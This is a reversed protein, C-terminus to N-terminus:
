KSKKKNRFHKSIDHNYIANFSSNNNNCNSKFYLNHNNQKLNNAFININNINNIMEFLHNNKLNDDKKLYNNSRGKKIVNPIFNEKAINKKEIKTKNKNFYKNYYVSNDDSKQVMKSSKIRETLNNQHNSDNLFLKMLDETKKKNLLSNNKEKKKLKILSATRQSKQSKLTSFKRKIFKEIKDISSNASLSSPQTKRKQTTKNILFSLDNKEKSPIYNHISNNSEVDNLIKISNTFNNNPRFFNQQSQMNRYNANLQKVKNESVFLQKKLAKLEKKLRNENERMENLKNNYEEKIKKINNTLNKNKEEFIQLNKKLDDIEEEFKRFKCGAVSDENETKSEQSSNISTEEQRVIILSQDDEKSKSNILKQTLQDIKIKKMKYKYKLEEKEYELNDIYLKM